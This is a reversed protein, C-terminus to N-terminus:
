RRKPRGFLGNGGGVGETRKEEKGHRGCAEGMWDEKIKKGRYSIQLHVFRSDKLQSIVYRSINSQNLDPNYYYRRIM